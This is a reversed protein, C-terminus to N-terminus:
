STGREALSTPLLPLVIFSPWEERHHVINTAIRIDAATDNALVANGSNTNRARRPFNSSTIDVQLRSGAAFTHHIDGLQITVQYVQDPSLHQPGAAANRYMARVVGDMLLMACGDPRLEILKAVFDTDRCNSQIHLTVDVAGAITLDEDLVESRYSLGYNPLVQVPRQDRPGSDILMNRGGLTLMPRNPDYLYSRADGSPGDASLRGDETLYLRRQVTGPPPWHEAHRWDTAVYNKHDAVWARPSYFVAPEEVIRTPEGKLWHDFWEFYPDRPWFNREYVFYHGNPGIWLRQNGVRSHIDTFAALVSTLFIDFWTTVHFGPVSITARFNHRARFADPAPHSLIEDLYPQWVSFDPYGTLPLRMWDASEIFPPNAQRAADLAAYRANASAAVAALEEASLGHRRMVAERHSPSLGPINRAVWLWLREMEISQGEYVVDDYISSGGVQTFFARV